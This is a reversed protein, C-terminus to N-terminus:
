KAQNLTKLDCVIIVVLVIYMNYKYSCSHPSIVEHVTVISWKRESLLDSVFGVMFILLGSM